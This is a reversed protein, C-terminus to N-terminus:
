KKRVIKLPRCVVRERKKVLQKKECKKGSEAREEEREKLENGKRTANNEKQSTWAEYCSM